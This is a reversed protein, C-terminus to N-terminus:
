EPRINKYVSIYSLHTLSPGDVSRTFLLLPLLLLKIRDHIKNEPHNDHAQKGKEVQRRYRARHRKILRSPGIGAGSKIMLTEADHLAQSRASGNIVPETNHVM